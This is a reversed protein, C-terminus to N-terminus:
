DGGDASDGTGVGGEPSFMWSSFKRNRVKFVYPEFTGREVLGGDYAPDAMLRGITPAYMDGCRCAPLMIPHVGAVPLRLYAPHRALRDLERGIREGLNQFSRARNRLTASDGVRVLQRSCWRELAEWTDPEAEMEVMEAWGQRYTRVLRLTTPPIPGRVAFDSTLLRNAVAVGMSMVMRRRESPPVDNVWSRDFLPDSDAM